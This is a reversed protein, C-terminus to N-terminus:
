RSGVLRAILRDRLRTPLWSVIKQPYANTGMLYRAKPRRATMAHVVARAVIEPPAATKEAKRTLRRIGEILPAYYELLGPDSSEITSASEDQGKQWIPTAIAAPQLLSVHIGWPRLEVRLADAFSELAHKSMCYPGLMPLTFFGSVSGTIVIRGKGERLLPLFAQTVAVQGFVNVEFQRRLESLSVFEMAGNVTIGANNMLGRLPEGDLSRAVHEAAAAISAEDLVDLLVPELRDSARERLADGAERKRVGAFVRFGRTDLALACATGIGTSAGTIVVGGKTSM